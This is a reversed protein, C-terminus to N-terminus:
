DDVEMMALALADGEDEEKREESENRTEQSQLDAVEEKLARLLEPAVLLEDLHSELVGRMRVLRGHLESRSSEATRARAQLSLFM